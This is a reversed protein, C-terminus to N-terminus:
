CGALFAAYASCWRGEALDDAADLPLFGAGGNWHGDSALFDAMARRLSTDRPLSAPDDTPRLFVFWLGGDGRPEVPHLYLCRQLRLPNATTPLLSQLQPDLFWTSCWLARVPKDPHHRAFFACAKRFSEQVSALDMGGGSPIHISLVLDGAALIPAWADRELCVRRQEVTGAPNVPYGEVIKDTRTLRTTWVPITNIRTVFGDGDIPLGDHALAIVTGDSHRRWAEIPGDFPMLQYALRGLRVYPFDFYTRLWCVQAGYCGIGCGGKLHNDLYGSVQVLTEVTVYEPYGRARHLASLAPKFELALLLFFAGTLGGLRPKLAPASPMGREPGVFIRWHLYWAVATLAPDNRVEHAVTLLPQDCEPPLGLAERRAPILAPDLFPLAGAPRAAQAADWHPSIAAEVASTGLAAAAASSTYIM